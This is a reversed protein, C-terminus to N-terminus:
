EKEAPCFRKYGPELDALEGEDLFERSRKSQLQEMIAVHFLNPGESRQEPIPVLTIPLKGSSLSLNQDLDTIPPLHIPGAARDGSTSSVDDLPPVVLRLRAELEAVSPYLSAPRFSSRLRLPITTDWLPGESGDNTTQMIAELSEVIASAKPRHSPEAAWCQQILTWTQDDLQESNPRPPREGALVKM